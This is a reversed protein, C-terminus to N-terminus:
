ICCLDTRISIKDEKNLNNASGLILEGDAWKAFKLIIPEPQSNDGKNQTVTPHPLKHSNCIFIDKNIKLKERFFNM